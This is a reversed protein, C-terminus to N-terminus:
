CLAIETLIADTARVVGFALVSHVLMLNCFESGRGILGEWFAEEPVLGNVPNEWTFYCCLIELFTEDDTYYVEFEAAKIGSLRKLWSKDQTKPRSSLMREASARIPIPASTAPGPLNPRTEPSDVRARKEASQQPHSTDRHSPPSPRVSPLPTASGAPEEAGSDGVLFAISHRDDASPPHAERSQVAEGQGSGGSSSLSAEGESSRATEVASMLSREADVDPRNGGDALISAVSDHNRIRDLIELAKPRSRQRLLILLAENDASSQALEAYRRRLATIRFEDPETEYVCPISKRQCRGCTPRVGDCQSHSRETRTKGFLVLCRM